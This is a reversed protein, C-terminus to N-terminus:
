LQEKAVPKQGLNSQALQLWRNFWESDKWENMVDREKM